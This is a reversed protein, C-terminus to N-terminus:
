EKRREELALSSSRDDELDIDDFPILVVGVVQTRLDDDAKGGGVGNQVLDKGNDMIWGGGGTAGAYNANGCPKQANALPTPGLTPAGVRM